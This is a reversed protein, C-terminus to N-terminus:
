REELQTVRDDIARVRDVIRSHQAVMARTQQLIGNLTEDLRLLTNERRLAIATLVKIDDRMSAMEDLMRRQQSALFELTITEAM